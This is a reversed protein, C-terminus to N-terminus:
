VSFIWHNVFMEASSHVCTIFGNEKQEKFSWSHTTVITDHLNADDGQLWKKSPVTRSTILLTFSEHLSTSEATSSLGLSSFVYVWACLVFYLIHFCSGPKEGCCHKFLPRMEPLITITVLKTKNQKNYGASNFTSSSSTLSGLLTYLTIRLCKMFTDFIVFGKLHKFLCSATFSMSALLLNVHKFLKCM